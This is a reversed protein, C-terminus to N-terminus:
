FGFKYLLQFRKFVKALRLSPWIPDVMKFKLVLIDSKLDAVGTGGIGNKSTQFIMHTMQWVPHVMKFKLFIVDSKFDAVEFVGKDGIKPAM